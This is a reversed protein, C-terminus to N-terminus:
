IQHHIPNIANFYIDSYAKENEFKVIGPKASPLRFGNASIYPLEAALFYPSKTIFNGNEYDLLENAQDLIYDREESSFGGVKRYRWYTSRGLFRLEFVPHTPRPQSPLFETSLYGNEKIPSLGPNESRLNISMVAFPIKQYTELDLLWDQFWTELKLPFFDSQHVFGNGPIRQWFETEGNNKAISKYIFRGRRSLDGMNYPRGPELLGIPQSLINQSKDGTNTFLLLNEERPSLPLNSVNIFKQDKLGFGVVLGADELPPIFPRYILKGGGSKEAEVQIGVFFGLPTKVIKLKHNRFFAQDKRSLIFEIDDNINYREKRLKQELLVSQDNESLSFYSTGRRDALYYDHYIRIEFLIKYEITMM